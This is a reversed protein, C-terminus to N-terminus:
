PSIPLCNFTGNRRFIGAMASCEKKTRETAPFRVISKLRPGFTPFTFDKENLKLVGTTLDVPEDQTVPSPDQIAQFPTPANGGGTPHNGQLRQLLSDVPDQNPNNPLWEALPDWSINSNAYVRNPVNMIMSSALMVFSLAAAAWKTTRTHM